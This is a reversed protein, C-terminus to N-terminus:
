GANNTFTMVFNLLHHFAPYSDGTTLASRVFSDFFRPTGLDPRHLKCFPSVATCHGGMAPGSKSPIRLQSFPNLRDGSRAGSGCPPLRTSVPLFRASPCRRPTGFGLGSRRAEATTRAVHWSPGSCLRYRCRLRRVRPSSCKRRRKWSRMAIIHANWPAFREQNAERKSLFPTSDDKERRM